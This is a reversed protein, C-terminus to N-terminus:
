LNNLNKDIMFYHSNTLYNQRYAKALMIIKTQEMVQPKKKLREILVLNEM